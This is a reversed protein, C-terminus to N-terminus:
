VQINTGNRDHKWLHVLLHGTKWRALLKTKLPVGFHLVLEFPSDLGKQFHGISLEATGIWNRAHNEQM